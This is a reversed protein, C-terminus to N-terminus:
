RASRVRDAVHSLAMRHARAQGVVQAIRRVAPGLTDHVRLTREVVSADVLLTLIRAVLRAAQVRFTIDNIM